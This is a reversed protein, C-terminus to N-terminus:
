ALEFHPLTAFAFFVNAYLAFGFSSYPPDRMLTICTLM